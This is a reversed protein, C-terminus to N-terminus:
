KRKASDGLNPTAARAADKLAGQDQATRVRYANGQLFAQNRMTGSGKGQQVARTVGEGTYREIPRVRSQGAAFAYFPIALMTASLVAARISLYRMFQRARLHAV